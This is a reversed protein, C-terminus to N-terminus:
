ETEDKAGLVEIWKEIRSKVIRLLVILYKTDNYNMFEVAYTLDTRILHMMVNNYEKM